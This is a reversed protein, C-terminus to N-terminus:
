TASSRGRRGSGPAPRRGTVDDGLARLAPLAQDVANALDIACAPMAAAAAAIEAAAALHHDDHEAVFFCFDVVSM